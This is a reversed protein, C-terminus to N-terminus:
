KLLVCSDENLQISPEGYAWTYVATNMLQPSVMDTAPLNIRCKVMESLDTIAGNSTPGDYIVDFRFLFLIM